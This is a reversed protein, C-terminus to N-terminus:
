RSQQNEEEVVDRTEGVRLGHCAVRGILLDAPLLRGAADVNLRTLPKIKLTPRSMKRLRLRCFGNWNKNVRCILLFGKSTTAIDGSGPATVTSRPWRLTSELIIETLRAVAKEANM